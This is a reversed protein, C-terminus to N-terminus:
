LVKGAAKLKDTVAGALEELCDLDWLLQLLTYRARMEKACVLATCLTDADLGIQAPSSPCGAESLKGALWEATPLEDLLACVEDWKQEAADIRLLRPQIDNKHASEELAIVEPAAQGYASRMQECWDTHSYSRAAARARDFDVTHAALLHALELMLVTGVAVQEGHMAYDHGRAQGLQELYHSFHHEAGSAPRSDGYLSIAVGSLVLADMLEGVAGADNKGLEADRSMVGDVSTRVLADIRECRHEGTIIQALRWDNLCSIKGALDGFGAASMRKPATVLIDTDGIIVASAHAPLTTKLGDLQLVGISAAFGDMPAGTAVTICPLGLKFSSFRLMDTISGTGCGIMVDCGDPMHAAIEGLTAEDFATHRLVRSHCEIGADHLLSACKEGAVQWTVDDCIIYPRKCGLARVHAPLTGIKGAGVEVARIPAYHTRGCPCDLPVNLYSGLPQPTDFMRM